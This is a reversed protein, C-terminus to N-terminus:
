GSANRSQIFQLAEAFVEDADLNSTDRVFADTAPQLPAVERSADRADREKLDRLVRNPIAELGRQRLEKLRREARVAPSATLFIKIDAEPCVVTGIDRGDLVAGPAGEPPHSAFARQFDLLAARVSAIAAVQSAANAAADSRLEADDLDAARFSQAIRPAAESDTPDIGARLCKLGVARYLLGTDLLAFGFHRALRRALTGKGSAAPGDVAIIM